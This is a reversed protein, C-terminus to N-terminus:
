ASAIRFEEATYPMIAVLGQQSKFRRVLDSNSGRYDSPLMLIGGFAQGYMETLVRLKKKTAKGYKSLGERSLRLEVFVPVEDVNVMCDLAMYTKGDRACQIMGNSEHFTYEGFSEPLEEPTVIHPPGSFHDCAMGVVLQRYLKMFEGIDKGANERALVELDPSQESLFTALREIGITYRM